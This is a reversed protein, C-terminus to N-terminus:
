EVVVPIGGDNLVQKLKEMKTEPEKRQDRWLAADEPLHKIL